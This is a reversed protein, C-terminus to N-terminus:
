TVVFTHMCAIETFTFVQVHFSVTLLYTVLLFIGTSGVLYFKRNSRYDCSRETQVRSIERLRTGKWDAFVMASPFFDKISVRQHMHWSCCYCCPLLKSCVGAKRVWVSSPLFRSLGLKKRNFDVEASMFCGNGWVCFTYHLCRKVQM